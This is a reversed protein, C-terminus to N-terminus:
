LFGFPCHLISLRSFGDIGPVYSMSLRSFGDIGPVYSMSLRSFSDISPVYSMSLRSFGDIGPVYSVPHLCVVVFVCCLFGFLNVVYVGGFVSSTGLCGRNTPLGRRECSVVMDSM